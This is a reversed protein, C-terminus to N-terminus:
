EYTGKKAITSAIADHMTPSGSQRRTLESFIGSAEESFINGKLYTMYRPSLQAIAKIADIQDFGDAILETALNIIITKVDRRHETMHIHSLTDAM